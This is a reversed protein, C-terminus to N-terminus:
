NRASDFSLFVYATCTRAASLYVSYFYSYRWWPTLGPFTDHQDIYTFSTGLVFFFIARSPSTGAMHRLAIGIIVKQTVRLGLDRVQADGNSVSSAINRYVSHRWLAALYDLPQEERFKLVKTKLMEIVEQPCETCREVLIGSTQTYKYKHNTYFYYLFTFLIKFICIYLSLSLSLSFYFV